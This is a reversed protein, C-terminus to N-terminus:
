LKMIYALAYYPPKNEHASGSGTTNITIAHSHDGGAKMLGSDAFVITPDRNSLYNTDNFVTSSGALYTNNQVSLQHIHSGATASSGTHGHSALEAITLAVTSAGGTAGPAYTSGAGVIFRDRLNPTGNNGDCLTWGIPIAVIAGSWMVIIGSPPELSYKIVSVLSALDNDVVVQGKDAMFQAIAAVMVSVQRYFKNHMATKAIGNQLGGTRQIEALYAGDSDTNETNTPNFVLFNSSGPL